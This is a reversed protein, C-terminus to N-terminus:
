APMPAGFPPERRHARLRFSTVILFAGLVIAYVGIWWTLVVAGIVPSLILLFGFLVSLVGGIALWLSGHGRDVRAAASLMVSGTVISWAGVVLVFALATIGPWFIAIAAAIISAVGQLLPLGWGEQRGDPRTDRRFMARFATILSFVGDVLMYAAFLLVLALITAAPMALAIIGFLVALLGRLAIV